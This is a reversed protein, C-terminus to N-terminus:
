SKGDAEVIVLQQNTPIPGELVQRAGSPWLISIQDVMEAANLGFYLPLDSQCLYGSQGDHVQTMQRGAATM